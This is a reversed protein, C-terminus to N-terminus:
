EPEERPNTRVEFQRKHTLVCIFHTGWAGIIGCFFAWVITFCLSFLSLLNLNDVVSLVAVLLDLVLWVITGGIALQYFEKKSKIILRLVVGIGVLLLFGIFSRPFGILNLFHVRESFFFYKM